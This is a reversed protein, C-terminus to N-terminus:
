TRNDRLRRLLRRPTDDGPADIAGVDVFGAKRFAGLSALNGVAPDAYCAPVEPRTFVMDRVFDKIVQTGLGRGTLKQDGILLDIGAAEAESQYVMGPPWYDPWDAVRFKQIYGIPISNVVILYPDTPREHRIYPLYRAVVQEMTPAPGWWPVIHDAALWGEMLALDAQQMRRFGILDRGEPNVVKARCLIFTRPRDHPSSNSERHYSWDTYTGPEGSRRNANISATTPGRHVRVV